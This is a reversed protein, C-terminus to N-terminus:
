GEDTNGRDTLAVGLDNYAEAWDPKRDLAPRYCRIVEDLKNLGKFAAGLDRHFSPENDRLAIARGIYEVAVSHRGVQSALVGLLHWADAQAPDSALVQRYLQEADQLRGAQHHALAAALAQAVTAM